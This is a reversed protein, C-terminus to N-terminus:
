KSVFMPPDIYTIQPDFLLSVDCSAHLWFNSSIFNQINNNLKECVLKATQTGNILDAALCNFFFSRM